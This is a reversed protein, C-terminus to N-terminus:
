IRRNRSGLTQITSMVIKWDVPTYNCDEEEERTDVTHSHKKELVPDYRYARVFPRKVAAHTLHAIFFILLICVHMKSIFSQFIEHLRLVFKSPFPKVTSTFVSCFLQRYYRHVVTFVFGELWSVTFLMCFLEAQCGQFILVIFRFLFLVCLNVVVASVIALTFCTYVFRVVSRNSRSVPRGSHKRSVSKEMTWRLCLVFAAGLRQIARLDAPCKCFLFYSLCLLACRWCVSSPWDLADAPNQNPPDIGM